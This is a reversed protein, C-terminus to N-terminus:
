LNFFRASLGDGQWGRGGAGHRGQRGAGAAASRGAAGDGGAEKRGGGGSGARDDSAERHGGDGPGAGNGDVEKCGWRRRGGEPGAPIRRGAVAAFGRGSSSWGTAVPIGGVDPSEFGDSRYLRSDPDVSGTAVVLDPYHLERIVVDYPSFEIM